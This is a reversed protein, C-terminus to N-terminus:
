NKELPLKYWKLNISNSFKKGNFRIYQVNKIRQNNFFANFDAGTSIFPNIWLGSIANDSVIRFTEVHNDSFKLSLFVPEERFVFRGIKEVITKDWSASALLISHQDQPVRLWEDWLIKDELIMIKTGFRNENRLRLISYLSNTGVLDYIDMIKTITKPEDFLINRNDISQFGQFYHFLLYEPPNKAFFNYNLSDLEPTLAVYSQFVPRPKWNLSNNTAFTNETPYFDISANEIKALVDDPIPISKIGKVKERSNIKLFDFITQNKNTWSLIPASLGEKVDQLVSSQSTGLVILLIAIAFYHTTKNFKKDVISYLTLILVAFMSFFILTLMHTDQRVVSAKWAVFFAPLIILLKKWNGNKKLQLIWLTILIFLLIFYILSQEWRDLYLTMASSHGNSYYIGGLLYEKLGEIKNQYILWFIITSIFLSSVTYALRKIFVHLKNTFFCSLILIPFIGLGLSFKILTSFGTFIGILIFIYYSNNKNLALLLLLILLIFIRWEYPQIAIIYLLIPILILFYLRNFYKFSNLFFVVTIASFATFFAQYIIHYILNNAIDKPFVLFGYPGYSFVLNKGWLFHNAFAYNISFIWSADVGQEIKYLNASFLFVISFSLSYVLYQM